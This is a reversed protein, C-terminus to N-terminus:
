EVNPLSDVRLAGEIEPPAGVLVTVFEDPSLINQSVRSVDETTVDYIKQSRSKLYSPPLGELQLAMMISAIDGTSTMSLPLSGILYAKATNLELDTIPENQLTKFEEQIISLVEPVNENATSTSLTLTDLYEMDTFGTYIGYTLGREERVKKMLRSGFGSSGLIYNMIQAAHYDPDRHDVGRQMVDIVTQPIDKEHLFVSGTNQLEFAKMDDNRESIKPLDGFVNDLVSKLVTEDIDGAVAIHLRDQSLASAFARLDDPTITDLTSLTGGSNQAYPHGQFAKDNMIRASIWDPDTLSSRIRAQNAARMREVADVDFRAKTLALTLLEFARTQYQSLTKVAGGFHDRGSNFRLSISLDQLEKQFSQSDLDGAGEDMTNSALLALGQLDAPDNVAGQGKFAFQMAIVPVTHDEVLWAKIGGDSEVQKINLLPKDSPPPLNTLDIPKVNIAQVGLVVDQDINEVIDEIVAVRDATDLDGDDSSISLNETEPMDVVVNSQIYFFAPVALMAGFLFVLLVRTM